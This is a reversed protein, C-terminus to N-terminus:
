VEQLFVYKCDRLEYIQAGFNWSVEVHAFRLANDYDDFFDAHVFDSGVFLLVMYSKM